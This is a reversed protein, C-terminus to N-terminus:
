PLEREMIGPLESPSIPAILTFQLYAGNQMQKLLYIQRTFNKASGECNKVIKASHAGHQAAVKM